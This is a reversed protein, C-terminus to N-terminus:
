RLAARTSTSLNTDEEVLTTCGLSSYYCWIEKTSESLLRLQHPLEAQIKLLNGRLHAPVLFLMNLRTLRWLSLQLSQSTQQLRSMAMSLQLFQRLFGRLKRQEMSMYQTVNSQEWKLNLVNRILRNIAQRNITLDIRAVHLISLPSDVCWGNQLAIPFQTVPSSSM